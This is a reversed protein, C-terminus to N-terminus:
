LSGLSMALRMLQRDIVIPSIEKISCIITSGGPRELCCNIVTINNHGTFYWTRKIRFIGKEGKNKVLCGERFWKPMEVRVVPQDNTM